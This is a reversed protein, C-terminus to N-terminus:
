DDLPFTKTIPPIDNDPLGSSASGHTLPELGAEDLIGFASAYGLDLPASVGGQETVSDQHHEDVFESVQAKHGTDM